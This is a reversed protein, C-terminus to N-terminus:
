DAGSGGFRPDHPAQNREVLRAVSHFRRADLLDQAADPRARRGILHACPTARALLEVGLPKSSLLSSHGGTRALPSIHCISMGM